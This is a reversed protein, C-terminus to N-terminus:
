FKVRAKNARNGDRYQLASERLGLSLSCGSVSSDSAIGAGFGAVVASAAFM